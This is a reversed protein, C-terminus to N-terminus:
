WQVEIKQALEEELQMIEVFRQGGGEGSVRIAIQETDRVDPAYELAATLRYLGAPIRSFDLIESFDRAELPLMLGSRNSSLLKKIRFLDTDTETVAIRCRPTFHVNGFNGGRVVVLYKSPEATAAPTMKQIRAMPSAEVNSNAVCIYAATVGANQGDPYTSQLRLVAYYCPHAAVPNPMTAVIRISQQAGSRLTFKDPKIKVWQSCDLDDGRLNGFVKNMLGRPLALSAQVNVTEDSGNFVKLVGTRTAGPLTSISVESPNLILPADGAVEKVSPHGAFDIEKGFMKARRGDVYLAGNIRYKGPPLPREVNGKLKLEVGPIINAGPLETETIQRWHGGSFGRLRTFVKLNSFTGGNNAVNVSVLTTAPYDGSSEIAELGVDLYEVKHRMPRGQIEVLVPVLFQIVVGLGGEILGPRHRLSAIIGAAYFGRIGRPVRLSVEIEDIGLPGLEITERSLSIWKLCSSLKSMDFGFDPHNPDTANPEIMRWSGDEWQTLEILFFDITHVANPDVSSLKLPTKVIRGPRAPINMRMPQIIFQGFAPGASLVVALAIAAVWVLGSGNFFLTKAPPRLRGNGCDKEEGALCCDVRNNPGNQSGM